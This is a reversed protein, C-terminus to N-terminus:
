RNNYGLNAFIVKKGSAEIMRTIKISCSLVFVSFSLQDEREQQFMVVEAMKDIVYLMPM